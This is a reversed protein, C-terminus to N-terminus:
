FFLEQQGVLIDEMEEMLEQVRDLHKEAEHFEQRIEDLIDEVQMNEDM